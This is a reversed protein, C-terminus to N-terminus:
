GLLLVLLLSFIATWRSIDRMMTLMHPKYNENIKAQFISLIGDGFCSVIMLVNAIVKPDIPVYFCIEPDFAWYFGIGGSILLSLLFDMKRPKQALPSIFRSYLLGILTAGVFIGSKIVFAFRFATTYVGHTFVIGSVFM